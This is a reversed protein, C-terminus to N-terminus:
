WWPPFHGVMIRNRVIVVVSIVACIVILSRVTKWDDKTLASRYWKM